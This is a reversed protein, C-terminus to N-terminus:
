LTKLLKSDIFKTIFRFLLFFTLIIIPAFKLIDLHYMVHHIAFVPYSILTLIYGGGGTSQTYYSVLTNPILSLIFSSILLVYYFNKSLSFKKYFIFTVALLTTLGALFLISTNYLNYFSPHIFNGLNKIKLPKLLTYNVLICSLYVTVYYLINKTKKLM